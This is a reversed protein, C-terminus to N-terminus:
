TPVLHVVLSGFLTAVQASRSGESNQVLGTLIECATTIEVASVFFDLRDGDPSYVGHPKNRVPVAEKLINKGLKKQLYAPGLNFECYGILKGRQPVESRSDSSISVEEGITQHALWYLDYLLGTAADRDLFAHYQGDLVYITSEGDVRPGFDPERLMPVAEEPPRWHPRVPLFPTTRRLVRRQV